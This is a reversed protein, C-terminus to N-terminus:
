STQLINSGTYTYEDGNIAEIDWSEAVFLNARHFYSVTAAITEDVKNYNCFTNSPTRFLNFTENAYKKGVALM